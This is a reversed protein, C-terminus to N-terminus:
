FDLPRESLKRELPPLESTRGELDCLRRIRLAKTALDVLFCVLLVLLVTGLVALSLLARNGSEAAVVSFIALSLILIVASISSTTASLALALLGVNDNRFFQQGNNLPRLKAHSVLSLLLSTASVCVAGVGTLIQLTRLDAKNTFLQGGFIGGTVDAVSTSLLIGAVVSLDILRSRRLSAATDM